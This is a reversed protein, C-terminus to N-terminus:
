NVDMVKKFIVSLGIQCVTKCFYIKLLTLNEM